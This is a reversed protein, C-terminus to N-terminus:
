KSHGRAGKKREATIRKQRQKPYPATQTNM